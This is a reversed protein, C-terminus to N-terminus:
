LTEKLASQVKCKASKLFLAVFLPKKSFLRGFLAAFFPKTYFGIYFYHASNFVASM